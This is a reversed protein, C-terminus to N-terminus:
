ERARDLTAKLHALVKVMQSFATPTPIGLSRGIEEFTKGDLRALFVDRPGEPVIDLAAQLL